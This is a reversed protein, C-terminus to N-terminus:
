GKFWGKIREFASEFNSKHPRSEVGYSEQIKELLEKQTENIKHPLIMKIQAILRGKRGSHVDAVGEGSFVFQEKDRTGEKLHLELEGNLSPITITEGLICQTFFVPVVIYIDNGDRVFHEDEEVHFTVYLDGRQGHRNENGYGAVRLRNGTDVGEPVAFKVTQEQTIYGAAHCSPCAEQAMQGSGQCKPCEQAFTMFGQRMVVQGRGECYSCSQMKGEKAGTGHCANCPSKYSLTIEKDTGFVAEHFPLDLTIEFDLAYKASPDRKRGQTGFGGGFMSNFVDMIDDMSKAHFGAGQRELGEKGYQDYIRRKEEKGLVDYAENILKFREEAKTDGPNKDPHYKLALKRYSKKIEAGAADRSIELIEYYDATMTNGNRYLKPNIKPM